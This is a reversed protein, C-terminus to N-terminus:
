RYSVQAGSVTAMLTNCADREGVIFYAAAYRASSDTINPSVVQDLPTTKPSV